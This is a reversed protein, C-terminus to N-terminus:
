LRGVITRPRQKIAASKVSSRPDGGFEARLAKRFARILSGPASATARRQQDVLTTWGSKVRAQLLGRPLRRVLRPYARSLLAAIYAREEKRGESLRSAQSPFSTEPTLAYLAVPAAPRETM